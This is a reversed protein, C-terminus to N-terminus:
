SFLDRFARNQKCITVIMGFPLRLIRAVCEANESRAFRM